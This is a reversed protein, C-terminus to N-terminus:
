SCSNDVVCSNSSMNVNFLQGGFQMGAPEGLALCVRSSSSTPGCPIRRGLKEVTHYFCPQDERKTTFGCFIVSMWECVIVWFIVGNSHLSEMSPDMFAEVRQHVKAYRVPFDCTNAPLDVFSIAWMNLLKKYTYWLSHGM